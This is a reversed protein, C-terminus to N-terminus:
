DTQDREEGGASDRETDSDVAEVADAALHVPDGHGAYNFLVVRAEILCQDGDCRLHETRGFM